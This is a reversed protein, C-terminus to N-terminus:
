NEKRESDNRQEEAKQYDYIRGNLTKRLEEITKTIEKSSLRRTFKKIKKKPKRM